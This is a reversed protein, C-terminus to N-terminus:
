KVGAKEKKKERLKELKEPLSKEWIELHDRGTEKAYYLAQDARNKLIEVNDVEINLGGAVGSSVTKKFTVNQKSVPHEIVFETNRFTESIDEAIQRAKDIANDNHKTSVIVVFEEGGYRIPIYEELNLEDYKYLKIIKGFQELVLDGGSHDFTDNTQKFFDIDFMIVAVKKVGELYESEKYDTYKRRVYLGTLSDFYMKKFLLKNEKIQESLMFDRNLDKEFISKVRKYKERIVLEGTINKRMLLTCIIRTKNIGEISFIFISDYASSGSLYRILEKDIILVCERIGRLIEIYYAYYNYTNVDNTNLDMNRDIPRRLVKEVDMDELTEPRYMIDLRFHESEKIDHCTHIYVKRSVDSFLNQILGALKVYNGSENDGILALTKENETELNDIQINLQKAEYELRKIRKELNYITFKDINLLKKALDVFIVFFTAIIISTVAGNTKLYSWDISYKMNYLAALNEAFPKELITNDLPFDPHRVLTLFYALCLSTLFGISSEFVYVLDYFFLIFLPYYIPNFYALISLAFIKTVFITIYLIYKETNTIRLLWYVLLSGVLFFQAFNVWINQGALVETVNNKYLFFLGLTVILQTTVIYTHLNKKEESTSRLKIM